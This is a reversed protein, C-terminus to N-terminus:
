ASRGAKTPSVRCGWRSLIGSFEDAGIDVQGHMVRADGDIDSQGTYNGAPDGANICPSAGTLHYDNDIYTTAIGDIGDPDVFLPDADINGAQWDLSAGDLLVKAQGGAIDGYSVHLTSDLATLQAGIADVGGFRNDRM